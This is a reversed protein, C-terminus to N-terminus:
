DDEVIEEDELEEKSGTRYMHDEERMFRRVTEKMGRVSGTVYMGIGFCSAAYLLSQGLIWLISDAVAGIPPVIFAAITLGWGIIFAVIATIYAIRTKLDLEAWTEKTSKKM